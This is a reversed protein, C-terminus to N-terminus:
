ERSYGQSRVQSLITKMEEAIEPYESLVSNQEGPDVSLDFLMENAEELRSGVLWVPNPDPVYGEVYKWKGKRLSTIGEHSTLVTSERLPSIFEQGMWAHLVNYSDGAAVEKDPLEEGLLASLTSYTDVLSIMEDCRTGSPIFGPWRVIYPVKFGGEWVQLKLGRLDGNIKLGADVAEKAGSSHGGNDSTFLVLTNDRFGASDIAELLEGVLFDLEQIFDGYPGGGSSGVFDPHTIHPSHIASQAYYLFFPKKDSQAHIWDVAKQTIMAMEFSDTRYPAPIGLMEKGNWSFEPQRQEPPLDEMKEVMGYVSDNEIWVGTLDGHNTPVGWHYDFGLDLPGPSIPKYYDTRDNQYGLHWKGIAATNYGANKLLTGLTPRDTSIHLKSRIGEVGYLKGTRWDYRGTLLGYRTPSCVSSPTYANTFMRGEEALRDISPTLIVNQNAGYVGVSGYGLDDALIVVINPISYLTDEESCVVWNITKQTGEPISITDRHQVTFQPSNYVVIYNNSASKLGGQWSNNGRPRFWAEINLENLVSYLKGTQHILGDIKITYLIIGQARYLKMSAKGSGHLTGLKQGLLNFYDIQIGEREVGGLDFFIRGDTSPYQYVSIKPAPLQRISTTNGLEITTTGYSLARQAIMTSDSYVNISGSAPGDCDDVNVTLTIAQSYALLPLIFFLFTVLHRM